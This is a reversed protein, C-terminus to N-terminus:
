LDLLFVPAVKVLHDRSTAIVCASARRGERRARKAPGREGRREGRKSERGVEWTERSWKEGKGRRAARGGEIQIKGGRLAITM